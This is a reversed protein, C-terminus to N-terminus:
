KKLNDPRVSCWQRCQIHLTCGFIETLIMDLEFAWEQGVEDGCSNGHWWLHTISFLRKTHFISSSTPHVLAALNLNAHFGDVQRCQRQALL